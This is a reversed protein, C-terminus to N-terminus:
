VYVMQFKFDKFKWHEELRNKFVNISDALVVDDPLDNWMNVIRHSFSYQKFSTLARPKLLRLSNGRTPRDSFKFFVNSDIRDIGHVIRYVQLMDSRQRRYYLTTLNLRKLRDSYSLHSLDRVLKTARRQVKEIDRNLMVHHPYWTTCCYEIVPRVLSKYLPIFNDRTLTQFTNRIIGLRSNAKSVCKSIHENFTLSDQFTVGLDTMLKDATLPKDDMIYTTKTNHKGYHLVNCKDINFPLLWKKSWAVLNNLDDQLLTSNDISNYIKTDDAFIKIHSTVSIPLDNIFIIFLIPGLVSGQPIGSTIDTWSSKVGNVVVRQKRNSLFSTIWKLINGQIGISSLKYLLNSHSVRDFAKAFDLYICDFDLSMDYYSTFDEMVELLQTACSYGKRFGYQHVSIKSNLELFPLIADRIISELLKCVISTLSVPRYNNCLSKSGKKHLASIHAEKWQYPLVGERLSKQFIINFIVAFITSCEKIIKAHIGDPGASKCIRLKDILKSVHSSSFYISGIYNDVVDATRSRDVHNEKNFVSTFYDNLLNAISTDDYHLIGDPDRISGLQIKRKSRFNVYKWFAKPNDKSQKCIKDEYLTRAQDTQLKSSNRLLKYSDWNEVTKRRYYKNYARRRTNILATCKVDIWPQNSYDIPESTVPIFTDLAYRFHDYFINWSDQTNESDLITLWDISIFYQRMQDYDGRYFLRREIAASELVDVYISINLVLHDSKGIPEDMHIEDVIFINSVLVLDLLNSQQGIRVRTPEDVLQELFLDNITDLFLDISTSRATARKLEWNINAFNFDGIIISDKYPLSLAHILMNCLKIDNNELSAPSRYICGLLVDDDKGNISCWVCEDFDVGMDIVNININPRAYICIGRGNLSHAILNYGNIQYSNAAAKFRSNKPLVENICIINPATKSLYVDLLNMKSKTFVDM